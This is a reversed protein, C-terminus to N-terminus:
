AKKFTPRYIPGRQIVRELIGHRVDALTNDPDYDRGEQGPYGILDRVRQDMYYAASAILGVAALAIPDRDHLAKASTGPDKGLAYTIGRTFPERLDPRLALLRDLVVTSLGDVASAAPM